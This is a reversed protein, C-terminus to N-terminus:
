MRMGILVAWVEKLTLKTQIFRTQQRADSELHHQSVAFFHVKKFRDSSYSKTAFSIPNTWFKKEKGPLKGAPIGM